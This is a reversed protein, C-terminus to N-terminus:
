AAAQFRSPRNKRCEFFSRVGSISSFILVHHHSVVRQRYLMALATARPSDVMIGWTGRPALPHSVVFRAFYDIEAVSFKPTAHRFDVVGDFDRSYRRDALLRAASDILGFITCNGRFNLRMLRRGADITYRCDMM